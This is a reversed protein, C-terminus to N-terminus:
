FGITRNLIEILHDKARDIPYDLQDLIMREIVEHLSIAIFKAYFDTDRIEITKEAVGRDLWHKFLNVYYEELKQQQHSSFDLFQLFTEHHIVKFLKQNKVALEVLRTVLAIITKETVPALLLKEMEENFGTMGEAVLSWALEDKSDFYLYFTGKAVGAEKVIDSVTTKDIHKNLLLKEAAQLIKKKTKQAKESNGDM